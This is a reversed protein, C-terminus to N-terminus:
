PGTVIESRDGTTADDSFTAKHDVTTADDNYLKYDTATQTMRNRWAKYLYALMLRMSTTAAPTGQGPQAFTDVNLVDLVESNVQAASLNNLAAIAALVADDAAALATALEANTPVADVGAVIAQLQTSNTDMEARISAASAGTGSPAQELANATYRAVGADSEVLENLLADAAGPKSAPDYTAALLHDLHIDTLGTDVEVNVSAKMAATLDGVTPANTLNTVTTITGATINTTSAPAAPVLDTKAKVADILVDLRGGNVWDTQLENTDAVIAALQTSNSDMEARISAASAGTGSPAQELANATYRAVGSDSEVLENLLADAAGPKSAPDYTTKLLHDLHNDVLAGDVEARFEAADMLSSALALGSQIETTVDAALKAATIADSAISAATIANAAIGNVTTVNTATTITGATINTPTALGTQLETTVDAALKAATIADANIATATIANAAIAGVSSDMRGSVLAAPLRTQIDNTDALITDMALAGAASIPLGGAANAAANPLATLGLRVTDFPDYAVLQIYCGVIVMGTAVGHVMVGTVGAACAADPLDLRFYGNGIQEVGGDTHATTLAALAAETIAVNAAGERRYNLDIGGTAHDFATEPTGDASDVARCVVSVDTTGAKITYTIM